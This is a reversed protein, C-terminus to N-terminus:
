EDEEVDDYLSLLSEENQSIPEKELEDLICFGISQETLDTHGDGNFDFLGNLYDCMSIVECHVATYYQKLILMKRRKSSGMEM